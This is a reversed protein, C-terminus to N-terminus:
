LRFSAVGGDQTVVMLADVTSGAIATCGPVGYAGLYRRAASAFTNLLPMYLAQVVV